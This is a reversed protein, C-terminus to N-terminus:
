TIKIYDEPRSGLTKIYALVLDMYVEDLNKIKKIWEDEVMETVVHSSLLRKLDIGEVEVRFGAIQALGKVQGLTYMGWVDDDSTLDWGSPEDEIAKARLWRNIVDRKLEDAIRTFPSNMRGHSGRAKFVPVYLM